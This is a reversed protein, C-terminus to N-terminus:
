SGPQKTSTKVGSGESPHRLSSPHGLLEFDQEYMEFAIRRTAENYFAEYPINNSSNAHPIVPLDMKLLQFIHGISYQLNECSGLYDVAIRGDITLFHRQPIFHTPFDADFIRPFDWSTVFRRFNDIPDNSASTYKQLVTYSDRYYHWHYDEPNAINKASYTFASVLRAYPNRALAFKFYQTHDRGEDTLLNVLKQITQHGVGHRFENGYLTHLMQKVSGGACKPTHVFIFKHQESIM